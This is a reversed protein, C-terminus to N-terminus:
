LLFSLSINELLHFPFSDLAYHICIVYSLLHPIKLLIPVLYFFFVFEFVSDPFHSFSCNERALIWTKSHSLVLSSLRTPNPWIMSLSPDWVSLDWNIELTISKSCFPAHSSIFTVAPVLPFYRCYGNTLLSNSFCITPFPSWALRQLIKTFSGMAAQIPHSLQWM